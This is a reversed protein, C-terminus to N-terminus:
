AAAVTARPELSEQWVAWRTEPGLAKARYMALDARHVIEDHTLEGPASVAVGISAALEVLRNDIVVPGMTAAILGAVEYAQEPRDLDTLLVSFEDGGMRCPLGPARVCHKLVEAFEVLVLDGSKHGLTDNVQKFGNMDIVLVASHKGTRAARALNRYSMARFRSRNALGTLGDTLAREDSERQVLTQRCLVLTSLVSGGIALGGWPYLTEEQVAAALMLVHAMGVAAFPLYRSGGRDARAERPGAALARCQEAAAAALLADTTIWCVFQWPSHMEFQGRGHLYGHVGDGAFLVLTGAALLRLPRRASPDGGRLLARAVLFLLALDTIPYVGAAVVVAPSVGHADVYPGFSVYWLLVMGGTLVTGADLATKWRDRRNMPALPFRQLAVLLALVFVVHTVDDAAGIGAARLGAVLLPSAVLVALSVAVARWAQRLRPLLAASRAARIAAIMGIVGFVLRAVEVVDVRASLLLVFGAFLLGLVAHVPPVRRIWTHM